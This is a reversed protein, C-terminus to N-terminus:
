RQREQVQKTPRAGGAPNPPEPVKMRGQIQPPCEEKQAPPEQIVEKIEEPKPEIYDGEPLAVSGPMPQAPVVPEDIVVPEPKVVPKPQDPQGQLLASKALLSAATVGGGLFLLDALFRRRSKGSKPENQSM